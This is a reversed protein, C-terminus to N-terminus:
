NCHNESESAKSLKKEVVYHLNTWKDYNWAEGEFTKFMKACNYETDSRKLMQRIQIWIKNYTGNNGQTTINKKITSSSSQM